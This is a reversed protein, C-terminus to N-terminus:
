ALKKNSAEAECYEGVPALAYAYRIWTNSDLDIIEGAQHVVGDGVDVARIVRYKERALNAQAKGAKALLMLNLYQATDAFCQRVTPDSDPFCLWLRVIKVLSADVERKRNYLQSVLDLLAALNPAIGLPKAWFPAPGVTPQTVVTNAWLADFRAV